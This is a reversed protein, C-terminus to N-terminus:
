RPTAGSTTDIWTGGFFRLGSLSMGVDGVVSILAGAFFDARLSM